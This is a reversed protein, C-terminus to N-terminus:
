KCHFVAWIQATNEVFVDVKGNKPQKHKICYVPATNLTLDNRNSAPTRSLLNRSYTLRVDIYIKTKNKTGKNQVAIDLITTGLRTSLLRTHTHTHTCTQKRILARQTHTHAQTRAHTRYSCVKFASICLLGLYM